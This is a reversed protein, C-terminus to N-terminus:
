LIDLDLQNFDCDCLRLLDSTVIYCNITENGFMKDLSCRYETNRLRGYM